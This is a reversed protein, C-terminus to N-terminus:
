DEDDEDPGEATIWAERMAELCALHRDVHQIDWLEAEILRMYLNFLSEYDKEQRFRQMDATLAETDSVDEVLASLNEICGRLLGGISTDFDERELTKRLKRLRQVGEEPPYGEEYGAILYMFAEGMYTWDDHVRGGAFIKTGKELGFDDHAYLAMMPLLKLERHLSVWDEMEFPTDSDYAFLALYLGTPHRRINLRCTSAIADGYPRAAVMPYWFTSEESGELRAHKAILALLQDLSLDPKDNEPEDFWQCHDLLIRCLRIMDEQTGLTCVRVRNLTAM